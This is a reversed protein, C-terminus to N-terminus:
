GGFLDGQAPKKAVPADAVREAVEAICEPDDNAPSNVRSSVRYARLRPAADPLLWAPDPPEPSELWAAMDGAGIIVPMRHHIASLLENAATTLLCFTQLEGGDAGQWHEWLGAFAFAAGDERVVRWPQKPGGGSQWEFYGDAPVLCRRRRYAARFSPKEAVTESRANIMRNGIEPDKAWAPVLGWQLFDPVAVGADDLRLVLAPQSPTINYRPGAGAPPPLGFLRRMADEPDTLSYRGCM